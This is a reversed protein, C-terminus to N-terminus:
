AVKVYLVVTATYSTAIDDLWVGDGDSTNSINNSLGILEAYTTVTATALYDAAIIDVIQQDLGITGNDFINTMTTSPTANEVTAKLVTLNLTRKYEWDTFTTVTPLTYGTPLQTTPLGNKTGNNTIAM